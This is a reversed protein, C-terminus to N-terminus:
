HPLLRQLCLSMELPITTVAGGPPFEPAMMMRQFDPHCRPLVILCLSTVDLHTKQESFYHLLQPPDPAFPLPLAVRFLRVLVGPPKTCSVWSSLAASHPSPARPQSGPFCPLLVSVLARPDACRDAWCLVDIDGLTFSASLPSWSANLVVGQHGSTPRGPVSTMQSHSHPVKVVEHVSSEARSASISSGM